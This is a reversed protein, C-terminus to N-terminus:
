NQHEQPVVIRHDTVQDVGADSREDEPASCVLDLLDENSSSVEKPRLSADDEDSALSRQLITSSGETSTTANSGDEKGKSEVTSPTSAPGHRTRM